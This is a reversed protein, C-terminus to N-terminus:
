PRPKSSSATRASTSSCSPTLSVKQPNFIVDGFTFLIEKDDTEFNAKVVNWIAEPPHEERIEM